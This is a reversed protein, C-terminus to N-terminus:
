VSFCATHTRMEFLSNFAIWQNIYRCAAMALLYPKCRLYLISLDLFERLATKIPEEIKCRLYLISLPFRLMRLYAGLPM